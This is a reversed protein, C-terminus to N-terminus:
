WCNKLFIGLRQEVPNELNPLLVFDSKSLWKTWRILLPTAELNPFDRLIFSFIIKLIATAYYGLFVLKKVCDIKQIFINIMWQM